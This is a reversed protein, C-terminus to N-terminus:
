RPLTFAIDFSRATRNGAADIAVLQARIRGAPLRRRPDTLFFSRKLSLAKPKVPFLTRPRLRRAQDLHHLLPRDTEDDHLQRRAAQAREPRSLLRDPSQGEGVTQLPALSREGDTQVRAGEPARPGPQRTQIVPGRRLTGGPPPVPAGTAPAIGRRQQFLTVAALADAVGGSVSKGQWAPVRRASDVIAARVDAPRASPDIGFLITALGAATPAAFSTACGSPGFGGGNVTTISNQTPVAVDVSRAGFAGCDLGDDPASTSVCIVNPADLGCPMPTEGADADEAAPANGSPITVFLVEPHDLIAERALGRASGVALQLEVVRVGRDAAWDVAAAQVYQFCDDNDWCTRLAIFRASRRSARM